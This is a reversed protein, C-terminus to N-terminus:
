YRLASMITVVFLWFTLGIGFSLGFAKLRDVGDVEEFVRMLIAVMWLGGVIPGVFPIPLSFMVISGMLMARMVQVYTGRAGFWWRALSHALGYQAFFVMADVLTSIAIAVVIRSWNVTFGRAAARFLPFVPVSYLVLRSFVWIFAGYAFAMEDRSAALIAADEFRAVGIALRLYYLPAFGSPTTWVKEPPLTASVVPGPCTHTIGYIQGCTACEQAM